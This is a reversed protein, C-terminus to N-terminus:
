VREVRSRGAEVAFTALTEIRTDPKTVDDVVRLTTTL